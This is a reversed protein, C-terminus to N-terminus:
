HKPNDKECGKSRCNRCYSQPIVRGDGMTRVGFLEEIKALDHDVTEGCCPCEAKLEYAM